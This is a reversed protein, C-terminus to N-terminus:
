KHWLAFDDRYLELVRPIYEAAVISNHRTRNMHPIPPLDARFFLTLDELLTETHIPVANPLTPIEKLWVSQPRFFFGHQLRYEDTALSLWDGLPVANKQDTLYHSWQSLVRTLPNRITYLIADWELGHHRPPIEMTHQSPGIPPDHPWWIGYFPAAKLYHHLTTSATKPPTVLVWGQEHNVIM